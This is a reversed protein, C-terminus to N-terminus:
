GACSGGNTPTPSAGCRSQRDADGAPGPPRHHPRTHLDVLPRTRGEFLEQIRGKVMNVAEQLLMKLGVQVLTITTRGIFQAFKSLGRGIARFLGWRKRRRSADLKAKKALLPEVKAQYEQGLQDSFKEALRPDVAALNESYRTYLNEYIGVMIGIENATQGARASREVVVPAMGSRLVGATVGEGELTRVTSAIMLLMADDQPRLFSVGSQASCGALTEFLIVGLLVVSLFWQLTHKM